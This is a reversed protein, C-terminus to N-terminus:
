RLDANESREHSHHQPSNWVESAPHGQRPPTSRVLIQSSLRYEQKARLFTIFELAPLSIFSLELSSILPESSACVVTLAM